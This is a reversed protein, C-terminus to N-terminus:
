APRPLVGDVLFKDLSFIIPFAAERSSFSIRENSTRCLWSQVNNPAKSRICSPEAVAVNFADAQRSSEYQIIEVNRTSVAWDGIAQCYSYDSPHILKQKISSYAPTCLNLCNQSKLTVNFASHKSDISQKFPAQMDNLFVFRYYAMEALATEISLSAYFFSPLLRTGFRSGHKLPPYRFATKLLYHMGETGQRYRPKIEDLLAELVGQEEMNDVINLTAATEQTEVVRWVKETYDTLQTSKNFHKKSLM